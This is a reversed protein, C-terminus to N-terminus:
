CAPKPTQNNAEILKDLEVFLRTYQSYESTKLRTLGVVAYRLRGRVILACDHWYDSWYGCKSAVLGLGGPFHQTICGFGLVGKMEGSSVDDVLRGQALLAFYTAASFATVNASNVGKLPNAAWNENGYTSTLWLGGRTPHYLGSQWAVSAIYPFGVSTIIARAEKNHMIGQFVTLAEATFDLTDPNAGSWNRIDFLWVLNPFGSKLGLAKWAKIAITELDRGSSVNQTEAMYRLDKRLQFAAYLALIKPVSAGYMAVTSGWGAFDPQTLKPGTLDILGIRVRDNASASGRNLSDASLFNRFQTTVLKNLCTQLGTGSKDLIMQDASDLIGPNMNKPELKAPPASIFQGPKTPDPQKPIHIHEFCILGKLCTTASRSVPSFEFMMSAGAVGSKTGPRSRSSLAALRQRTRFGPMGDAPLGERRQFSRIAKRTRFNMVGDLPLQEGVARNLYEQIRRIYAPGHDDASRDDFLDFPSPQFIFLNRM